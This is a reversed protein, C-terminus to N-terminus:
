AGSECKAIADVMQKFAHYNAIVIKAREMDSM